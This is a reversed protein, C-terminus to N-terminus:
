LHRQFNEEFKNWILVAEKKFFFVKNYYRQFLFWEISMNLFLDTGIDTWNM